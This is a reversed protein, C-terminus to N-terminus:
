GPYREHPRAHELWRQYKAEQAARWLAEAQAEDPTRGVAIAFGPIHMRWGDRWPELKAPGYETQVVKM